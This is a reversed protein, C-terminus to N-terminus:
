QLKIKTRIDYNLWLASLNMLFYKNYTLLSSPDILESKIAELEIKRKKIDDDIEKNKRTFIDKTFTGEIALEEIRNKEGLNKLDKEIDNIIKLNYKQKEALVDKFTKSFADFNKEKPQLSAFSEM